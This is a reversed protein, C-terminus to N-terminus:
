LRNEKRNMSNQQTNITMIEPEFDTQVFCSVLIGTDVGWSYPGITRAQYETVNLLARAQVYNLLYFASYRSVNEKVVQFLLSYNRTFYVRIILISLFSPPTHCVMGHHREYQSVRSLSGDRM